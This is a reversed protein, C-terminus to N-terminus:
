YFFGRNFDLDFSAAESAWVAFGIAAAFFGVVLLTRGWDVPETGARTHWCYRGAPLRTEDAGAVAVVQGEVV